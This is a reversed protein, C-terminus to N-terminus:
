RSVNPKHEGFLKLMELTDRVDSAMRMEGGVMAKRLSLYRTFVGFFVEPRAFFLDYDAGEVIGQARTGGDPAAVLHWDGGGDGNIHFNLTQPEDPGLENWYVVSWQAIFRDLAFHTLDTDFQEWLPAQELPHTIQAGHVIGAHSIQWGLCDLASVPRNSYALTVTKQATETTLAYAKEHAIRMEGALQVILGNPAAVTLREIEQTNWAQLEERQSIGKVTLTEGRLAADTAKNFVQAFSLVHALTQHLTWAGDYTGTPTDWADDPVRKWYDHMISHFAQLHKELAPFDGM